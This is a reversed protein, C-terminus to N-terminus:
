GCYIKHINLKYLKEFYLASLLCFFLHERTIDARVKCLYLLM